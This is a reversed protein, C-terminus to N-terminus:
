SVRRFRAEYLSLVGHCVLGAATAFLLIKGYSQQALVALARDIGAAENPDYYFAASIFFYGMLMLILARASFSFVGLWNVIHRQNDSLVRLKYFEQYKGTLGSYFEHFGTGIIVIGILTMLISGLPLALIIAAVNRQVEGSRDARREAVLIDIATVALFLYFFGVGAAVVRKIIGQWNEGANDVDAVGRLIHWGGHAIAGAIFIILFIRGYSAEAIRELAGSPDTLEGGKEGVAVMLALIGIVIFLFGKAYFGFRAIKKIIPHRVTEEAAKVTEGIKESVTQATQENM